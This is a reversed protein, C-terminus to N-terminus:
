SRTGRTSAFKWLHMEVPHLGHRAYFRIAGENTAMVALQLDFIDRRALEDEAAQLLRSGIGRSRDRASVVLTHVEGCRSGIDFTDDPGGPQIIVAAYGAVNGAVRAGLIFGNGDALLRRYGTSRLEWSLEDDSQMPADAIAQEHHHLELWLDRLADIEDASVSTISCDKATM